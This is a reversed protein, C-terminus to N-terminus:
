LRVVEEQVFQEWIDDKGIIKESSIEQTVSYEELVELTEAADKLSEENMSAREAIQRICDESRGRYLLSQRWGNM